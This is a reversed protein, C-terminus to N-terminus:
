EPDQAREKSPHAPLTWQKTEPWLLDLARGVGEVKNGSVGRGEGSAESEHQCSAAKRFVVANKTLVAVM